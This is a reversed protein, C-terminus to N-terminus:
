INNLYQVGILATNEEERALINPVLVLAMEDFIGLIDVELQFTQQNKTNEGNPLVPRSVLLGKIFSRETPCDLRAKTM